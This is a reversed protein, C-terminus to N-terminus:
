KNPAGPQDEAIKITANGHYRSIGGGIEICYGYVGELHDYFVKRGDEMEVWTKNPVEHLKTM